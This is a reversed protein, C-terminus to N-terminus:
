CSNYAQEFPICQRSVQRARSILWYIMAVTALSWRAGFGENKKEKQFCHFFRNIASPQLEPPLKAIGAHVADPIQIYKPSLFAAASNLVLAVSLGIAKVLHVAAEKGNWHTLGLPTFTQPFCFRAASHVGKGVFLLAHLAADAIMALSVAVIGIVRSTVYRNFVIGQSNWVHTTRIAWSTCLSINTDVNLNIVKM